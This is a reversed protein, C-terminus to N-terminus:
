DPRESTLPKEFFLLSVITRLPCALISKKNKQDFAPKRTADTRDKEFVEVGREVRRQRHDGFRDIRL